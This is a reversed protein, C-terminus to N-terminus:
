EMGNDEDPDGWVSSNTAPSDWGDGSMINEEIAILHSKAAPALYAKREPIFTKKEM